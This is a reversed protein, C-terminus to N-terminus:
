IHKKKKLSFVAYSIRMLSQLESTHEEPRHCPRDRVLRRLCSPRSARRGALPLSPRPSALRAPAQRRCPTSRGRGTREGARIAAQASGGPHHSGTPWPAEHKRRAPRPRHVVEAHLENAAGARAPPPPPGNGSPPERGSLREGAM